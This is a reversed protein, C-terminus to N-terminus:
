RDPAYRFQYNCHSCCFEEGFEDVAKSIDIYVEKGCKPCIINSM